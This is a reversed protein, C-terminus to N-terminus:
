TTILPMVLHCSLNYEQQHNVLTSNERKLELINPCVQSENDVERHAEVEEVLKVVLVHTEEQVLDVELVRDLVPIVKNLSVL